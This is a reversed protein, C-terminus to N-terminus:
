DKERLVIILILSLAGGTLLGALTYWVTNATLLRSPPLEEGPEAPPPPPLDQVLEALRVEEEALQRKRHRRQELYDAARNALFEQLYPWLLRLIIVEIVLRASLRRSLLIELVGLSRLITGM